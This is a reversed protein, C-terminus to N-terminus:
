YRGRRDYPTRHGKETQCGRIRCRSLRWTGAREGKRRLSVQFALLAARISQSFLYLGREDFLKYAKEPLELAELQKANLM